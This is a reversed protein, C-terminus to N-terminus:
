QLDRLMQMTELESDSIYVNDKVHVTNVLRFSGKQKNRSRCNYGHFPLCIKSM